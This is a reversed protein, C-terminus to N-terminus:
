WLGAWLIERWHFWFFYTIKIQLKVHIRRGGHQRENVCCLGTFTLIQRGHHYSSINLWVSSFCYIIKIICWKNANDTGNTVYVFLPKSARYSWISQGWQPIKLKKEVKCTVTQTSGNSPVLSNVSPAVIKTKHFEGKNCHNALVLRDSVTSM